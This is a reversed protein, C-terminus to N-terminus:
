HLIVGLFYDHGVLIKEGNEGFINSKEFFNNFSFNSFVENRTFFTINMKTALRGRGKLISKPRLFPKKYNEWFICGKKSFVTLYYFIWYRIQSSLIKNIKLKQRLDGGKGFFNNFTGGFSNKVTKESFIAKKKSFIRSYFINLM